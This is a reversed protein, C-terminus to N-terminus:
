LYQPDSDYNPFEIKMVKKGERRLREYLMQAQTAKGSADSGSEIIVLKGKM